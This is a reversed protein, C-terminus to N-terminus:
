FVTNRIVDILPLLGAIAFNKQVAAFAINYIHAARIYEACIVKPYGTDTAEKKWIKTETYLIGDAASATMLQEQATHMTTKLPFIYM